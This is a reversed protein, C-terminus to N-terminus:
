TRKPARPSYISRGTARGLTASPLEAFLKRYDAAFQGLHWFGWDFAAAQITLTDDGGRLTRRVQNLRFIRLYQQPSIGLVEIFGNHMTRRTLALVSCLEDLTVMRERHATVFDVAKDVTLKRSVYTSTMPQSSQMGALAVLLCSRISQEIMKRAAGHGLAAAGSELMGFVATMLLRLRGAAAASIAMVPADNGLLSALELHAMDCAMRQLESADFTISCLDLYPSSRFDM